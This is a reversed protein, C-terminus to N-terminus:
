ANNQFRVTNQRTIGYLGALALFVTDIASVATVGTNPVAELAPRFEVWEETMQISSVIKWNTQTPLEGENV